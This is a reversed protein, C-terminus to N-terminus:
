GQPSNLTNKDARLEEVRNSLSTLDKINVPIGKKRLTEAETEIKRQLQLQEYVAHAAVLTRLPSLVQKSPRRLTLAVKRSARQELM